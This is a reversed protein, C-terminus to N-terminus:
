PNVTTDDDIDVSTELSEDKNVLEEESENLPTIVINEPAIGTKRKVIDEIQARKADTLDAEPVVVDATEGTLNVIVNEFGKAELLLEAASEKETLDAMSVMTSVAEQKQDDGLDQNNIIAQLDAKNQSRIQERDIRAQAAFDSAATLVAEGPTSTTQDQVDTLSSDAGNEDLLATEDTLDYDVDELISSSDASAEKNKLGLDVDAFNLYGAVAILVALSTIIVQNKKLIKKM